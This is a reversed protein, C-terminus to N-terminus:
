EKKDLSAIGAGVWDLGGTFNCGKQQKQRKSDRPYRFGPGLRQIVHLPEKFCVVQM